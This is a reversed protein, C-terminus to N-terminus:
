GNKIEELSSVSDDIAELYGTRWDDSLDAFPYNTKNKSIASIAEDFHRERWTAMDQLHAESIEKVDVLIEYQKAYKRICDECIWLSNVEKCDKAEACCECQRLDM